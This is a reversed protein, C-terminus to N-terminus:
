DESAEAVECSDQSKSGTGPATARAVNAIAQNCSQMRAREASKPDLDGAPYYNAAGGM